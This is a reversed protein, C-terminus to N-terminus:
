GKSSIKPISRGDLPHGTCREPVYHAFDGESLTAHRGVRKACQAGRRRLAKLCEAENLVEGHIKRTQATRRKSGDAGKVQHRAEFNVWRKDPSQRVAFMGDFKAREAERATRDAVSLDGDDCGRRSEVAKVPEVQRVAPNSRDTRHGKCRRWVKLVHGTQVEEPTPEIDAHFCCESISETFTNPEILIGATAPANAEIEPSSGM